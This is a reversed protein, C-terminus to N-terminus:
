DISGTLVLGRPSDAPTGGAGVMEMSDNGMTASPALFWLDFDQTGTALEDVIKDLTQGVNKITIDPTDDGDLGAWMGFITTGAIGDNALTWTITSGANKMSRGAITVDVAEAGDNTLLGWSTGTNINDSLHVTGVNWATRNCSVDIESGQATITINLVTGAMTVMVPCIALVLAALIALVVLKNRHTRM